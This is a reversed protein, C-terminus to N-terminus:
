CRSNSRKGANGKSSYTVRAKKTATPDENFDYGRMMNVGDGSVMEALM